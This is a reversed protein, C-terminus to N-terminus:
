SELISVLVFRFLINFQGKEEMEVLEVLSLFTNSSKFFM